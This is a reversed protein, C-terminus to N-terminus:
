LNWRRRKKEKEKKKKEWGKEIWKEGSQSNNLTTMKKKQNM